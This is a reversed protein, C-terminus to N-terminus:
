KGMDSIRNASGRGNRLTKMELEIDAYRLIKGCM